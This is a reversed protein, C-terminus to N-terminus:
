QIINKNSFMDAIIDAFVIFLKEKKNLNYEEINKHIHDMDNSYETFAKSGKLHKLGTSERNNINQKTYIKLM